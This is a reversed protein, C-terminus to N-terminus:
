GAAPTQSPAVTTVAATTNSPTTNGAVTTSTTNSAVTSESVTSVNTVNTANAVTTAITTANYFPTPQTSVPPVVSFPAPARYHCCFQLGDMTPCCFQGNSSCNVDNICGISLDSSSNCTTFEPCASNIPALQKWPYNRRNRNIRTEDNLHYNEPLLLTILGILLLLVSGSIICISKRKANSTLYAM